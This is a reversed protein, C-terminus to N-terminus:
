KEEFATEQSEKSHRTEYAQFLDRHHWNSGLIVHRINIRHKRACACWAFTRRGSSIQYYENVSGRIPETLVQLYAAARDVTSKGYCRKCDKSRRLECVDDPQVVKSLLVCRLYSEVVASDTCVRSWRSIRQPVQSLYTIVHKILGDRPEDAWNRETYVLRVVNVLFKSGM